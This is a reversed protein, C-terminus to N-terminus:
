FNREYEKIINYWDKPKTVKNKVTKYPQIDTAIIDTNTAEAELQKLNSKCRNFTNDVLPALLIDIEKYAELYTELPKAWIRKYNESTGKYPTDTYQLLYKKYDKSVTTYDKTLYREIEVWEKSNNFGALTISTDKPFKVLQIDHKHYKGCVFGFRPKESPTKVFKQKPVINPLLYVNDLNLLGALYESPTTIIDAIQLHKMVVAQLKDKYLKYLPHKQPLIFYDDLDMIVTINNAKCYELIRTNDLSIFRNFAIANFDKLQELNDLSRFYTAGQYIPQMRFRHYCIAIQNEIVAIKANIGAYQYITQKTFPKIM